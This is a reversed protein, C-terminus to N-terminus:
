RFLTINLVILLSNQPVVDPFVGPAVYLTTERFVPFGICLGFYLLGYQLSGLRAVRLKPFSSDLQSVKLKRTPVEPM